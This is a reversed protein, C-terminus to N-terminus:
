YAPCAIVIKSGQVSTNPNGNRLEFFVMRTGDPPQINGYEEIRPTTRGKWSQHANCPGFRRGGPGIAYTDAVASMTAKATNTQVVFRVRRNGTEKPGNTDLTLDSNVLPAAVTSTQALWSMESGHAIWFPTLIHRNLEESYQVYLATIDTLATALTTTLERTCANRADSLQLASLALLTTLGDGFADARTQLNTSDARQDAMETEFGELSAHTLLSRLM